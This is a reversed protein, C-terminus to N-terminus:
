LHSHARVRLPTVTINRFTLLLLLYDKFRNRCKIVKYETLSSFITSPIIWNLMAVVSRTEYGPGRLKVVEILTEVWQKSLPPGHWADKKHFVFSILLRVTDSAIKLHMKPLKMVCRLWRSTTSFANVWGELNFLWFEGMLEIGTSQGFSLLKSNFAIKIRIGFFTLVVVNRLKHYFIGIMPHSLVCSLTASPNRGILFYESSQWCSKIYDRNATPARHQLRSQLPIGVSRHRVLMIWAQNALPEENVRFRSWGLGVSRLTSEATSDYPPITDFYPPFNTRYFNWECFKQLNVQLQLM